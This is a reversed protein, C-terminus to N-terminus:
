KPLDKVLRVSVKTMVVKKLPTAGQPGAVPVQGIKTVVDQGRVVQGFITYQGNLWNPSGLCIYFQCGASAPHTSRAMALAGPKHLLVRSFEPPITYGRDGLGTGKPDGGQIMFGKIVRHFTTKDYLGKRVLGLFNRVTNPAHEDYLRLDIAGFRTEIRVLSYRGGDKSPVVEFAAKKSFVLDPRKEGRGYKKKFDIHALVAIRAEVKGVQVSPIEIKGELSAGAALPKQAAIRPRYVSGPTQHLYVPKKWRKGTLEFAVSFKSFAIPRLPLAAQTVNTLKIKFVVPSGLPVKAQAVSLEVKLPDAPAKKKKEPQPPDQAQAASALALILLATLPLRTM